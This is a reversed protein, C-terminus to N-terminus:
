ALFGAAAQPPAIMATFFLLMVGIVLMVGLSVAMVQGASPFDHAEAIFAAMMYLVYLSAALQVLFGLAFLAPASLILLAEAVLAAPIQAITHWGTVALLDTFAGKGGFRRGISWALVATGVFSVMNILFSQILGSWSRAAELRAAIEEQDLKLIEWLVEAGSSGLVAALLRALLAYLAFGAIAMAAADAGSPRAALLRRASARPDDYAELWHKLLWM